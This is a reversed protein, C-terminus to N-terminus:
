APAMIEALMAKLADLNGTIDDQSSPIGKRLNIYGHINGEAQRYVTWVGSAELKDAYAKGQDRLPDLCAPRISISRTPAGIERKGSISSSL